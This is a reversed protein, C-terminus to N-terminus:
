KEDSFLYSFKVTMFDSQTDFGYSEGTVYVGKNLEIDSIVDLNKAPGDHRYFGLHKGVKGFVHIVFDPPVGSSFSGGGAAYLNGGMFQLSTATDFASGGGDWIFSWLLNGNADYRLVIFDNLSTFGETTGCVAVGSGGYSAIGTPSDDLNSSGNFIKDWIKGGSSDFKIVGIDGGYYYYPVNTWGAIYINGATDVTMARLLDNKNKPGNYSSNWKLDGYQDYKLLMLDATEGDHISNQYGGVYINGQLLAIVHTAFDGQGSPGDYTKSWLLVGNSDYKRVMADSGLGGVVYCNGEADVSLDYGDHDTKSWLLNGDADLRLTGATGTLYISNDNHVEMAQPRDDDTLDYRFTWAEEGLASYKVVLYDSNNFSGVPYSSGFVICNGKRDLDLEVPTDYYHGEYRNIWMRSSQAFLSNWGTLFALLTFLIVKM